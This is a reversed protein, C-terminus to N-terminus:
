TASFENLDHELAILRNELMTKVAALDAGDEPPHYTFSYFKIKPETGSPRIAVYNGDAQFDLFILDSVPGQFPASSGDSHTVTQKLYDCVQHVKLDALVKPPSQRLRAMIAKIQQMGSEGYLYVSTTREAHCGYRLYLDDLKQHLSKGAAKTEAALEAMLMAAVAGDKDRVYNGVMFGHSEETGYVFQDAGGADIQQAIWKFGVLLEDYTKVGFADAIRRVLRTTVLTTIVFNEPSLTGSAQRKSLIYDCLMGCLQNGTFTAWPGTPDTTVPAAAGIRDCDPDTAIAIDAGVEQGREIIAAFVAANEPNAVHDPVNPFDGDPTAHPGFVEVDNFGDIELAPVAARGGVGHLPSYIIKLDRPGPFAQAKVAEFFAADIEDQCFEIQGAAVAEDFDYRTIEGVELVQGIVGKDHPPVLQGGTSWYAKFGNDSPPNHSATIMIGCCCNKHRVAFSLEPTSRYGDLFYVQFGAAAMIEACLRAFRESNHRTDYAIACSFNTEPPSQSVVYGALGVASEGMTRENIVASGIEYMEGRRGGTGFEIIKWFAKNLRDFEGRALHQEISDVYDAYQPQTLWTRINNAAADSIQGGSVADDLLSIANTNDDTPM